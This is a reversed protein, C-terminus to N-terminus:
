TKQSESQHQYSQYHNKSSNIPTNKNHQSRNSPPKKHFQNMFDQYSTLHSPKM